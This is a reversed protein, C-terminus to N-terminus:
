SASEPIKEAGLMAACAAVGEAHARVRRHSQWAARDLVFREESRATGRVAVRDAGDSRYGLRETIRRSAAGGDLVATRAARAGLGAFALHLVAARMETGLGRGQHPLGLWSGTSVERVVAFDTAAIEQIGVPSGDAFVTLQLRWDEPRWEAQAKWFYTLVSRAREAPPADTWPTRFPMREPDHVGGAAVSALADLEELDPLRLELRPTTIRLGYLPWNALDM